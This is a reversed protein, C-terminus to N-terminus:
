IHILSLWENISTVSTPIVVSTLEKCMYFGTNGIATVKYTNTGDSVESPIELDGTVLNGPDEDTGPKTMVTKASEDVVTYILTQGNYTYKFDRASLQAPILALLLLWMLASLASARNDLKKRM